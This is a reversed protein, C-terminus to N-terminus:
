RGAAIAFDPRVGVRFMENLADVVPQGLMNRLEVKDMRALSDVNTANEMVHITLNQITVVGGGGSTNIFETLDTNQRPSLVREGRQLLYTSEDPVYDLGGHAAGALALSSGATMSAAAGAAAVATNATAVGPAMSWGVMPIAAASAFSNLYVEGMATSMKTQAETATASQDLASLILRQVGMQIYTAIVTKLVNKAVDMMGKALSAGDVLSQAMANGILQSVMRTSVGYWEMAAQAEAWRETEAALAADFQGDTMMGRVENLERLKAEHEELPTRITDLVTGLKELSETISDIRAQEAEEAAKAADKAAVDAEKKEALATSINRLAGVQRAASRDAAQANEDWVKGVETFTTTINAAVDNGTADLAAWAQRFEGQAALAISAFIGGLMDGVTKFAGVVGIGASMLLQMATAITEGAEKAVNGTTALDVLRGTVAEITPSLTAMAVNVSGGVVQSLTSLNDNVADASNAFDDTIVLGLQQAQSMMNKMSASGQNLFPVMEVGSKGLIRMAYETKNADNSSTMFADSMDYLVDITPRLEGNADRSAIGLSQLAFGAETREGEAMAKNLMRIGTTMSGLETNSQSAVYALASYEEVAMNAKLAAAGMADANDLSQQALRLGAYAAGAAAAAIMAKEVGSLEGTAKKLNASFDDIAKISFEIVNNSM